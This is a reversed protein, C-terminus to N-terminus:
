NYITIAKAGEINIWQLFMIKKLTIKIQQYGEKVSLNKPYYVKISDIEIIEYKGQGALLPEDIYIFPVYSGTVNKASCAWGGLAPEFKLEIIVSSHRKKIYETADRDITIM